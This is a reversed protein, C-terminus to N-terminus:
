AFPHPEEIFPNMRATYGCLAPVEARRTTGHYQFHEDQHLPELEPIVVMEVHWETPNNKKTGLPVTAFSYGRTACWKIIRALHGEISDNDWAEPASKQFQGAYMWALEAPRNDKQWYHTRESHNINHAKKDGGTEDPDHKIESRVNKRMRIAELAAGEVAHALDRHAKLGVTIHPNNGSIDRVIAYIAYAPADTALRVADVILRYRNCISLLRAISDHVRALDELDIRPLTIKNLWMIMFADREILELTGNLQAFARTPGTALGNTITTWIIPESKTRRVSGGYSGSVIQAPVWIDKKLILNQAKIWLFSSDTTITLEPRASRQERSYGAFRVPDIATGKESIERYTANTPSEFYDKTFSWLYRELAEALAPILADRESKLSMGGARGHHHKGYAVYWEFISPEDAIDETKGYSIIIGANQMVQAIEFLNALEDKGGYLLARDYIFQGGLRKEIFSIVARIGRSYTDDGRLRQWLNGLPIPDIIM